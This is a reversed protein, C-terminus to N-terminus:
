SFNSLPEPPRRSLTPPRDRPTRPRARLAKLYARVWRETWRRRCSELFSITERGCGLRRAMECSSIDAKLRLRRLAKALAAQDQEYRFHAEERAKVMRDALRILDDPTM